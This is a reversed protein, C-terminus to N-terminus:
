RDKHEIRNLCETSQNIKNNIQHLNEIKEAISDRLPGYSSKAEMADLQLSIDDSKKSFKSTM